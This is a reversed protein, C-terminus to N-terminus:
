KVKIDTKSMTWNKQQKEPEFNNQKQNLYSVYNYMTFYTYTSNSNATHSINSKESITM